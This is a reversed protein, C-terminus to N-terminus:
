PSAGGVLWIGCFHLSGSESGSSTWRSRGRMDSMGRGIRTRRIRSVIFFFVIAPQQPRESARPQIGVNVRAAVVSSFGWGGVAVAGTVAAATAATAAALESSASLPRPRCGCCSSSIRSIALIPKIMRISSQFWATM